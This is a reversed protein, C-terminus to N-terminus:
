VVWEAVPDVPQVDYHGYILVVPQRGASGEPQGAAAAADQALPPRGGCDGPPLYGWVM